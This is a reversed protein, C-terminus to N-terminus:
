PCRVLSYLCDVWAFGANDLLRQLSVLGDPDELHGESIRAIVEVAGCSRMEALCQQLLERGLGHGRHGPTVRLFWLEATDELPATIYAEGTLEGDTHTMELRWGPPSTWPVKQAVPYAQGAPRAHPAHWYYNKDLSSFGASELARFTVIRRRIPIGNMALPSRTGFPFATLRRGSGFHCRVHDLLAATIEPDEESHMWLLTGTGNSRNTAYSAVGTVTGTADTTVVTYPDTFGEAAVLHAAGSRTAHRLDSVHVAPQGPLRDAHVLNLVSSEDEDRYLRLAERNRFRSRLLNM